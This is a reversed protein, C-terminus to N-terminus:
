FLCFCDNKLTNKSQVMFYIVALLIVSLILWFTREKTFIKGLISKILNIM